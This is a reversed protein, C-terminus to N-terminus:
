PAFSRDREAERRAIEDEVRDSGACLRKLKPNGEIERKIAALCRGLLIALRVDSLGELDAPIFIAEGM